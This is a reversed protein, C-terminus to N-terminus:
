VIQAVLMEDLKQFSEMTGQSVIKCLSEDPLGEQTLVVRTEDGQEVFDITIRTAAMGLDAHYVIREPEIIEDYHGTIVFEGAGRIQMKQTFSGGVRFDMEVECSTADNCGTWQQLKDARTWFSFVLPRPAAFVRTIQLRNASIDVESEM